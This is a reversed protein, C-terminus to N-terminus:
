RLNCKSRYLNAAERQLRAPHGRTNLFLETIEVESFTVGTGFLRHSLFDRV